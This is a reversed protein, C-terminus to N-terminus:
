HQRVPRQLGLHHQLPAGDGAGAEARRGSTSVPEIEVDEDPLQIELVAQKEARYSDMDITDLIGKSLDDEIPAPLKPVLFAWSSPLKEWASNPYPLIAALFGYTRLFAKAKGKLAVQGDEDLQERYLSVCADLIPDLQNRGGKSLFLEVLEDLQAPDYVQYGNLAAKLDHLRDPDTEEALVTTRYYDSFAVQITDSDNNFDLVFADHKKPHARILRSLTQVAKVGSLIKDVYMTHLLPEDYGTQFKDACVLFRYPEEQIRNSILNSSFGNLSAATVKTGDFEPEGSFAAIALYPSKREKLFDRIAYFYSIARQISSTVVM